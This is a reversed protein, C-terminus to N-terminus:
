VIKALFLFFFSEVLIYQNSLLNWYSTDSLIQNLHWSFLNEGIVISEPVSWHLAVKLSHYTAIIWLLILVEM